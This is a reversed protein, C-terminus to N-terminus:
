NGESTTLLKLIFSINKIALHISANLAKEDEAEVTVKIGSDTKSLVSKARKEFSSDTEPSLAGVVTQSTKSDCVLHFSVALM